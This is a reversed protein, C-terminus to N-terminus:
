LCKMRILLCVSGAMLVFGSMYMELHKVFLDWYAQREIWGPIMMLVVGATLALLALACLTWNLWNV